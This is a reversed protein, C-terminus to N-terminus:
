FIAGFIFRFKRLSNLLRKILFMGVKVTFNLLGGEFFRQVSVDSMSMTGLM